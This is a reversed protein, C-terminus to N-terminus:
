RKWEITRVKTVADGDYMKMITRVKERIKEIEREEERAGESQAIRRTGEM